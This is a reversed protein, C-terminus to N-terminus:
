LNNLWSNLRNFWINMQQFFSVENLKIEILKDYSYEKENRDEYNISINFKNMGEKLLGGKLEIKFDQRNSIEEVEFKKIKGGVDVLVNKAVSGESLVSFSIFTM